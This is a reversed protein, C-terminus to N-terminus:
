YAGGYNAKSQEFLSVIKYAIKDIDAEERVVFTNGSISVSTSGSQSVPTPANVTINPSSGLNALEKQLLQVTTAHPYIRSKNPLEILEGGRENIETWGGRFSTTGTANHDAGGRPNWGTISSGRDRWEAVKNSLPTWINEDFWSTVGSWGRKIIDIGGNIGSAIISGATEAASSIPQWVNGDFWNAVPEWYVKVGDWAAGAYGSITDWTASAADSIPTWVNDNVWQVGADWYPSIGEWLTAGIGVIVNITDIFGDTLPQAFDKISEFGNNLSTKMAEWDINALWDGVADGGIFGLAGGLLGGIAAGPAAGVGGFLSGIAGGAMAGVKGGAWMGALGGAGKVTAKAKDDATAINYATAGIAVAAGGRQLWKGGNGGMFKMFKQWPGMAAAGKAAGGSAGPQQLGPLGGNVIVNTANVTMTDMDADAGGGLGGPASGKGGFLNRIGKYGKYTGYGIGALAGIALISGEGDLKTAKQVLDEFAEGVTKLVAKISLGNKEVDESFHSLLKDVEKVFSRIGEINDGKMLNMVFSDWDGGLAELDGFLNDQRRDAMRKAAGNANDIAETLTKYKEPAANVIALLGSMGEQGSLMSAYQAQQDKSLRAFGKRLDDLVTRFPKINGSADTLSVGLKDMAAASQKTPSAMRTLLSRLATGAQEGKIGSDAMTGIAISADEITYGLAGALPAVYKFTYGMKAVDTNSKTATAALVDAFHGAREAKLGFASMSDTVIDSVLGLDENSAAALYMTGELGSLMEQTNWGAMGMYMLADAAEKASFKTNAGMQMAKKTLAEFDEGVAGSIAGVASMQQEFEGYQKISEYAGFGIGATGLMGASTGRLMGSGIGTLSQKIKNIGQNQRINVTATYVKGRISELQSKVRNVVSTAKDKVRLTVNYSGSKLGSLKTKLNTAKTTLDKVASGAKSTASNVGNLSLRNATEELQKLGNKAKKATITMNDKLEISASLKVDDAM